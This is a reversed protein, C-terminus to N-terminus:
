DQSRIPNALPLGLTQIIAAVMASAIRAHSTRLKELVQVTSPQRQGDPYDLAHGGEEM